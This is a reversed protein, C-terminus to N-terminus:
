WPTGRLAEIYTTVDADPDLVGDGVLVGALTGTLSKSVSMLLHTDDPAMGDVYHEFVIAGDHVACM